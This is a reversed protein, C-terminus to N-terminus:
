RGGYRIGIVGRIGPSEYCYWVRNNRNLLNQLEAFLMISPHHIISSTHDGSPSNFTYGVGLNNEVFPPLRRDGESTVAWRGGRFTNDSYIAWHATPHGELHATLEWLPHDYIRGPTCCDATGGILRGATNNRVGTYVFYDGSLHMMFYDKCNYTLEAGAKFRQFDTYLIAMMDWEGSGDTTLLSACTAQHLSYRYGADLQLLLDARPRLQLGIRADVPTYGSVHHSSPAGVVGIYPNLRVYGTISGTGFSGLVDAFLATKPTLQAKMRVNPSPAFAVQRSLPTADTTASMLNGRGINADLNVGLHISVREGRYAYFPELRLSYNPNLQLHKEDYYAQASDTLVVFRNESYINAGVKWDVIGEGRWHHEVNLRGNLSLETMLQRFTYSQGTLEAKYQWAPKSTSRVGVTATARWISQKDSPALARFRQAVAYSAAAGEESAPRYYRGYRTFFLNAGGIKAYVETNGALHAYDAGLASWELTKFGWKAEHDAKLVLSNGRGDALGYQGNLLSIQYGGAMRIFREAHSKGAASVQLTVTMGDKALLQQPAYGVASFALKECEDVTIEFRGDPDTNVSQEGLESTVTVGELPENSKGVVTGVVSQQNQAVAGCCLGLIAVLIYLIRKM